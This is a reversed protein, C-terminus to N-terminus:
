RQVDLLLSNVEFILRRLERMLAPFEAPVEHAANAHRAIQNLNNAAGSLQRRLTRLEEISEDISTNSLTEAQTPHLTSHVLTRSMSWGLNNAKAELLMKEKATLQVNVVCRKVGNISRTSSRRAPRLDRTDDSKSDENVM